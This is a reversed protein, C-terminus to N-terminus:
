SLRISCVRLQNANTWNYKGNWLSKILGGFEEAMAGKMGLPNTLNIESLHCSGLHNSLLLFKELFSKSVFFIIEYNVHIQYVNFLRM